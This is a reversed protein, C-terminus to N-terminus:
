MKGNWSIAIWLDTIDKDSFLLKIEGVPNEPLPIKNLKGVLLGKFTITSVLDDKNNLNDFVNLQNKETRAFLDVRAVRELKGNSWFPYHEDKLNLILEFHQDANASLNKFKSWETPFEHRISFLRVSGSAQGDGILTKLNDVAGKRLLGGAERATYRIHLIVDSITDYDFQRVDAPLELNWESIV